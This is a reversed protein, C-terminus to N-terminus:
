QIEIVGHGATTSDEAGDAGAAAVAEQGKRDGDVHSPRQVAVTDGSRADAIRPAVRVAIYTKLEAITPQQGVRM